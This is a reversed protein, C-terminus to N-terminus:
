LILLYFVLQTILSQSFNSDCAFRLTYLCYFRASPGTRHSLSFSAFAFVTHPPDIRVVIWFRDEIQERKRLLRSTTRVRVLLPGVCLTEVVIFGTKCKNRWNGLNECGGKYM